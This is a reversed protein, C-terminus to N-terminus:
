GEAAETEDELGAMWIRGAVPALLKGFVFDGDAAQLAATIHPDGQQELGQRYEHLLIRIDAAGGPLLVLCDLEQTDDHGTALLRAALIDGEELEEAGEPTELTHSQESLLDRLALHKHDVATVEFFGLLSEALLRLYRCSGPPLSEKTTGLVALAACPYEGLPADAELWGALLAQFNPNELHEEAFSPDESPLAVYLFSSVAEDLAQEQTSEGLWDDLQVVALDREQPTYPAKMVEM